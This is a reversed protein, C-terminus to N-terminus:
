SIGFQLLNRGHFNKDCQCRALSPVMVNLMFVSTMIVNLMLASMKIANLMFVSIKIVNLMFVVIVSLV